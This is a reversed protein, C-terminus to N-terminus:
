GHCVFYNVELLLLTSSPDRERERDKQRERERGTAWIVINKYFQLVESSSTVESVKYDLIYGFVFEKWLVGVNDDQQAQLCRSRRSLLMFLSM